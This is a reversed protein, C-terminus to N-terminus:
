SYCHLSQMRVHGTKKLPRYSHFFFVFSIKEILGRVFRQFRAERILDFNVLIVSHKGNQKCNEACSSGKSSAQLGRSSVKQCILYSEFQSRCKIYLRGERNQGFEIKDM